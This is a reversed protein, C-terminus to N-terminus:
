FIALPTFEINTHNVMIFFSLVLVVVVFVFGLVSLQVSQLGREGRKAETEENTM